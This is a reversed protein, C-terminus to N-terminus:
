GHRKVVVQNRGHRKGLYLSDDARQLISGETKDDEAFSAVGCTVSVHFLTGDDTRFALGALAERIEEAVRAADDVSSDFLLVAFEEGGLRGAVDTQRFRERLLVCLDKLVRDGTAHGYTDNVAKFHDIDLLLVVASLHSRRYHAFAQRLRKMFYRRNYIGTLEDTIAQQRLKEELEKHETIDRVTGVLTDPDDLIPNGAREHLWRLRGDPRLIRYTLDHHGTTWLSLLGSEVRERDQPHVMALFAENDPSFTQCDVGFLEYVEESWFVDGTSLSIKWYGLKEIRLVEHLTLAHAQWEKLHGAVDFVVSRASDRDGETIPTSPPRPM